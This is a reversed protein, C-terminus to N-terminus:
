QYYLIRMPFKHMFNSIALTEWIDIRRKLDLEVMANNFICAFKLVDSGGTIDLDKNLVQRAIVLRLEPCKSHCM